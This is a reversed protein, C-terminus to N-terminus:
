EYKPRILMWILWLGGTCFFLIIDLASSYHRRIRRNVMGSVSASASASSSASNNNSIIIPKDTNQNNNIMNKTPAGCHVCVVAEDDIEKGCKFCFM